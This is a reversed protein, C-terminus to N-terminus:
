VSCTVSTKSICRAKYIVKFQTLTVALIPFFYRVVLASSQSGLMQPEPKEIKQM